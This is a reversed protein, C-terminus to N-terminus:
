QDIFYRERINLIESGGLNLPTVRCSMLATLTQIFQAQQKRHAARLERIEEQRTGVTTQFISDAPRLNTIETRQASVQTRLAIVGPRAANREWGVVAPWGLWGTVAPRGGRRRRRFVKGAPKKRRFLFDEDGESRDSGSLWRGESAEGVRSWCGCCGGGGSGSYGGVVVVVE